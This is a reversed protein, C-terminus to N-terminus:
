PELDESADLGDVVNAEEVPVDLGGVEGHAAGGGGHAVDVHEVEPQGPLVGVGLALHPWGPSCGPEPAGDSVGGEVSVLVPFHTLIQNRM